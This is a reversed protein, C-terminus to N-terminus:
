PCPGWNGLLVLLDKVGVDGTNDFDAPCEAKPPCPGWSGLLSLLDPVGVTGDGDLDAICPVPLQMTLFMEANTMWFQAGDFALSGWAAPPLKFTEQIEGDGTVKYVVDVANDLVWLDEGVWALGHVDIAGFELVAVIKGTKPDIGRVPTPPGDSHYGVWLIGSHFALGYTTLQPDMDIASVVSYDEFRLEYIKKTVTDGVWFTGDNGLSLGHLHFVELDPLLPDVTEVLEGTTPDYKQLLNGRSVAYLMGIWLGVGTIGAPPSIPFQEVLEVANTRGVLLSSAVLAFVLWRNRHQM